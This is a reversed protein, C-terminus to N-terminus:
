LIGDLLHADLIRRMAAVDLTACEGAADPALFEARFEEPSLYRHLDGEATAGPEGDADVAFYLGLFPWPGSLVEVVALPAIPRATRGFRDTRAEQPQGRVRRLRLGAEEFIERRLAAEVTEGHRMKGGPLEWFGEYPDGAKARRQVLFRGGQPSVVLAKVFPVAFRESEREDPEHM